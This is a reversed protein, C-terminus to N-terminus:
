CGSGVSVMGARAARLRASGARSHGAKVSSTEVGQLGAPDEVPGSAPRHCGRKAKRGESLTRQGRGERLLERPAKAGEAPPADCPAVLLSAKFTLRSSGKKGDEGGDARGGEM